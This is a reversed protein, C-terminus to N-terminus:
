LSLFDRCAMRSVVAELLSGTVLEEETVKYLERVQAEQTLGSLESLATTKGKVQGTIKEVRADVEGESGLVVALTETDAEGLGFTKLANGVNKKTSLNFIVESYLSRTTMKNAAQARVARNAAVVLQFPEVVMQPKVLSAEVQGSLILKRVEAANTVDTFLLLRCVTHGEDELVVSFAM